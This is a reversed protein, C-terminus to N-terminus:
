PKAAFSGRFRAILGNDGVGWAADTSGSCAVAHFGLKGLPSWSEGGDTSLDSGTPGVAVATPQSAGQVYAIASRYSAPPKGKPLTWTRGGDLTLAAVPGTKDPENYDGGVAIGHNHDRFALSFLGSSARAAPIPTEDVSWTQGRDVSRFVRAHDAGGTGFWANREGAVVLCTGSAAFAGEGKKAHPMNESTSRKWNMGGDDTLLVTFRGDVPDGLAIGHDADWFALADLFVRPDQNQLRLAWAAGGDETQYIRSKAGEGISLLFAKRDDFAHVDRFDLDLAGAVRGAKWTIGGDDTRVFTGSTGSAWVVKTNVVALGRLRAQTVSPEPTWQAASVNCILFSLAISWVPRM